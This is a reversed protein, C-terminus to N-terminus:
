FLKCLAMLEALATDGSGKRREDVFYTQYLNAKLINVPVPQIPM